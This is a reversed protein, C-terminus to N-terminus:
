VCHLIEDVTPVGAAKLLQVVLQGKSAKSLQAQCQAHVMSSQVKYGSWVHHGRLETSQFIWQLLVDGAADIM